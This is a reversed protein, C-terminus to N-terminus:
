VVLVTNEHKNRKKLWMNQFDDSIEKNLVISYVFILFAIQELKFDLLNFM